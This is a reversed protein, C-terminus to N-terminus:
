NVIGKNEIHYRGGLIYLQTGDIDMCLLPMPENFSHVYLTPSDNGKITRYIVGTLEGLVVVTRPIQKVNKFLLAKHPNRGWHFGRYVDCAKKLEYANVSIKKRKAM